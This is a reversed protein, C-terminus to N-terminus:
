SNSAPPTPLLDLPSPTSSITRAAVRTYIQTTRLHTHGLLSQITVLDTGNELLHSAFAHRLLRVNIPRELGSRKWAEHCAHSVTDGCVHTDPRLGPFLWHGPKSKRIYERVLKLLGSSLMVLRDRRGKGEVVRVVNQKTDIDKIRLSAVEARRLGGGYAAALMVHQRLSAASALLQAVEEPSPVEPLPKAGKGYVIREVAWAKRLTVKYLFRLACVYVTVSKNALKRDRILHLQYAKVEDPGLRGPPTGGHFRVFDRVAELYTEQTRPSLGRLTMDEVMRERVRRDSRLPQVTSTRVEASGEGRPPVALRLDEAWPKRLTVGYLFRLGLLATAQEEPSVRKVCALYSLYCAVDEANLQGPPFMKYYEAFTAVADM